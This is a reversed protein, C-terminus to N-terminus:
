MKKASLFSLVSNPVASKQISQEVLPKSLKDLLTINQATVGLLLQQEGVQVVIVREKAGLSLSSITKLQSVGQTTLNFRKLVFACFVILVLVMLLSVIMSGADMNAMVHKGVEPTKLPAKPELSSKLAMKEDILVPKVQVKDQQTNLLSTQFERGLADQVLNDRVLVDQVLAEPTVAEKPVAIVPIDAVNKAQNIITEDIKGDTENSQAFLPLTLLYCSFTFLLCINRGIM